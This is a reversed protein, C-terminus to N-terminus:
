KKRWYAHFYVTYQTSVNVKTRKYQRREPVIQWGCLKIFAKEQAFKIIQTLNPGDFIALYFALM